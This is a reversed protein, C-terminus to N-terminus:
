IKNLLIKIENFLIINSKDNFDEIELVKRGLLWVEDTTNEVVKNLDKLYQPLENTKPEVTLYGIFVINNYIKQLDYLNDIPVSQGLYISKYGNLTLEYHLYLLGLEHIENMPLYLVFVKSPNDPPRLQLREINLHLKQKILNSIFHEHAPTITESQWLYGIEELFPIFVEQFVGRFTKEALVQNYTHEFLSQDFNLMSLKFSSLSHNKVGKETILQRVMIPLQSEEIKAIKSIKVNNEYLYKINLLKQLSKLSYFRINTDTRNPALLDYRKEWIRLTHAKIGSLNELDKITFTTKIRNLKNLKIKFM